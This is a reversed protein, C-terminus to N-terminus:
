HIPYRPGEGDEGQRASGDLRHTPQAPPPCGHAEGLGKLYGRRVSGATIAEIIMQDHRQAGSVTRVIGPM